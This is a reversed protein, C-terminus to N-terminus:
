NFVVELYSKDQSDVKVMAFVDGQGMIDPHSLQVIQDNSFCGEWAPTFKAVFSQKRSLSAPRNPDLLGEWVTELIVTCSAEVGYASFSQGILPEMETAVLTQWNKMSYSYTDTGDNAYSHGTLAMSGALLVAGLFHRRSYRKM